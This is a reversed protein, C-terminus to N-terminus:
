AVLSGTPEYSYGYVDGRTGSVVVGLLPVGIATLRQATEYILPLRSSDRLVSLMVCDTQQGIWATDPVPLVPSSDLVVFDYERRLAGFVRQMVSVPVSSLSRHGLRGTTLIDLRANPGSRVIDALRADSGLLDVLGPEQPLEFLHHLQPRRIDCDVLLTKHGARALSLALQTALTTKGEGGVASTVMVVQLRRNQAHHLLVTRVADASDTLVDPTDAEQRPDFDHVAPLLGIVRIGLGGAVELPTNVKRTWFELFAVGFALGFFTAFAALGMARVKRNLDKTQPVEAPQLLTIRPPSQLEVRLAEQEAGIRNAISDIQTIETRLLELDSSSTGVKETEASIRTIEETLLKDQQDLLNIQKKLDVINLDGGARASLQQVVVPRLETRRDNLAKEVATLELRYQQLAPEAPNRAVTEFRAITEQLQAIRQQREQVVRDQVIQAQILTEPIDVTTEPQGGAQLAGLRVQARMREFRLRTQEGRLQSFHELAMQQKITLAQSDSTGLTRALQRYTARKTRVKEEYAAHSAELDNLRALRQDREKNVIEQLYTQQVANVLTALGAPDDGSMSIRLIESGGPYDVAIQNALWSVPDRRRQVAPLEAAGPQRLAGNLVFRSKLLQVQTRQYTGFDGGKSEATDFVLRPQVSAVRLLSFATYQAPWFFWAAAAAAVSFVLGVATALPWRRRWAHFLSIPDPRSSLAPPLAPHIPISQKWESPM